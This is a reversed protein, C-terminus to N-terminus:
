LTEAARCPLCVDTVVGPIHSPSLRDRTVYAFCLCCMVRGDTLRTLDTRRTGDPYEVTVFDVPEPM